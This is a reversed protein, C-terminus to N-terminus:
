TGMAPVTIIAAFMPHNLLNNQSVM